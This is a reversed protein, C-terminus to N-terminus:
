LFHHLIDKQLHKNLFIEATTSRIGRRIHRSCLPGGVPTSFSHIRHIKSLKLLSTPRYYAIEGQIVPPICHSIDLQIVCTIFNSSPLITPALFEQVSKRDASRSTIPLVRGTRKEKERRRLNTNQLAWPKEQVIVQM